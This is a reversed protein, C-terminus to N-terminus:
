KKFFLIRARLREERWTRGLRTRSVLVDDLDYRLIDGVAGEDVEAAVFLSAQRLRGGALALQM